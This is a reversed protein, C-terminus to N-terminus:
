FEKSIDETRNNYIKANKKGFERYVEYSENNDLTYKIKGSFDEGDWPKYKEYDSMARGKKNKSTGYFMNIIYNLLTSKGKENEGYIINICNKLSLEKDKLKGYSNIKINDIRM